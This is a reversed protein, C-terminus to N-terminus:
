NGDRIYGTCDVRMMVSVMPVLFKTNVISLTQLLQLQKWYNKNGLVEAQTRLLPTDSIALHGCPSLQIYHAWIEGM